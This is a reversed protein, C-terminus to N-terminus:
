RKAETPYVLSQDEIDQDSLRNVHAEAYNEELSPMAATAFEIPPSRQQQIAFVAVILVVAAVSSIMMRM